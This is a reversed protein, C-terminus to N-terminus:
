TRKLQKRSVINDNGSIKRPHQQGARGSRGPKEAFRPKDQRGSAKVDM